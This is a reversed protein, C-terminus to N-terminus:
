NLLDFDHVIALSVTVLNSIWFPASLKDTLSAFRLKFEIAVDLVDTSCSQTASVDGVSHFAKQCKILDCELMSIRRQRGNSPVNTSISAEPVFSAPRSHPM